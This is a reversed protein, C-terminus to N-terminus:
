YDFKKKWKDLINKVELFEKEYNKWRNISKNYLPQSVQNFSPTNIVGRSKGVKYFEKLNSSWELELFNLLSTVSKEFNLVTDEYKVKHIRVPFKDLYVFLLNMVLDYLKVTSKIDTFNITAKNPGFQQMFCSLIVDYPNRLALIFKSKPFFHLIEAIHIINLPLKDIFIKKQNDYIYKKRENFYFERMEEFFTESINELEHFNYNIKKELKKIFSDIIPVEELVHISKHGLLITDLLTTGSRPFGILFIPEDNQNKIEHAFSFKKEVKSFFNIRKEIFLIYENKDIIKQYFNKIITNAELFYKYAVEFKGLSDYSQAIIGLKIVNKNLENKDLTTKELIEIAKNYNKKRFEYIGSFYRVLEIEGLNVKCLNLFDNIEVLQNSNEYLEFLSNYAELMNPKIHITKQYYKIADSIENRDKYLNAFNFYAVFNKPNYKIAKKYNQKALSDKKLRKYALGLNCFADSFKPNLKIERNFYEISLDIQGSNLYITGLVNNIIPQDPNDLLINEFLSKATEINKSKLAQFAFEIKKKIM